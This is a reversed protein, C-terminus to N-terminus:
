VSGLFRPAGTSRPTYRRNIEFLLDSLSENGTALRTSFAELEDPTLSGLLQQTPLQVKFRLPQPMQGSFVSEVAPPSFRRATEQIQPQTVQSGLGIGPLGPVYQETGLAFGVSPGRGSSMIRQTEMNNRVRLDEGEPNEIIEPGEEGVLFYRADTTGGHALRPADTATFGFAGGPAFAAKAVAQAEPSLASINLGSVVQPAASVPTGPQPGAGAAGAAVGTPAFFQPQQRTPLQLQPRERAAPVTGRLSAQAQAIESNLANLLDAQSVESLPSVGGRSFYARALFDASEKLIGRAREQGRERLSAIDREAGQALGARELEFREFDRQAQQAQSVDFQFRSEGLQERQLGFGIDAQRRQEGLAAEAQQRNANIQTILRRDGAAEAAQADSLQQARLEQPSFAVRVGTDNSQGTQPNYTYLNGNFGTYTSLNPNQALEPVRGTVTPVGTYPDIRVVTGDPGVQIHPQFPAFGRDAKTDGISALDVVDVMRGDDDFLTYKSTGPVQVYGKELLQKAFDALTSPTGAAVRAATSRAAAQTTARKTAQAAEDQEFASRAAEAAGFLTSGAYLADSVIQTVKATGEPSLFRTGYVLQIAELTKPHM